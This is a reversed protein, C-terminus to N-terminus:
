THTMQSQHELQEEYKFNANEELFKGLGKVPDSKLQNFTTEDLAAGSAYHVYKGEQPNGVKVYDNEQLWLNVLTRFAKNADPGVPRFDSSTLEAINVKEDKFIVNHKLAGPEFDGLGKIKHLIASKAARYIFEDPHTISRILPIDRTNTKIKDIIEFGVQDVSINIARNLKTFLNLLSMMNSRWDNYANQESNIIEDALLKIEEWYTEPGGEKRKHKPLKDMNRVEHAWKDWSLRAKMKQSALYDDEKQANDKEQVEKLSKRTQENAEKLLESKTQGM